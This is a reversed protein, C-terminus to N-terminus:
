LPGVSMVVLTNATSTLSLAIVFATFMIAWMAGSFLGPAGAIRAARWPAQKKHVLLFGAVFLAAFLSRWFVMEFATASRIHRTVVGATSWLVPACLMMCLAIARSPVM